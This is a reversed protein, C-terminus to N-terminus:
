NYGNAKFTSVKDNPVQFTGGPGTMTTFGSPPANDGAHNGGGLIQTQWKDLQKNLNDLKAKASAPTDAGPGTLVPIDKVAAAIESQTIRFGSGQGGALASLTGIATTRYNQYARIDADGFLNKGSNILGQIFSPKNKNGISKEFPIAAISDAVDQLNSKAVAIHSLKSADTADLVPKVGLQQALIASSKQQSPTLSSLDVYPTGDYSTKYYPQLTSPLNEVSVSSSAPTQSKGFAAAAKAVYQQVTMGTAQDRRGEKVAQAYPVGTFYASAVDQINGYKNWLDGIKGKQVAEQADPSALFQAPTLSQGYYEKTWSPINSELVQYKGYSRQGAYSGGKLVPSMANYDGNSENGLIAASAASVPDSSTGGQGYPQGTAPDLGAAQRDAMLKAQYDPDSQKIKQDYDAELKHTDIALQNNREAQAAQFQQQEKTNFIDKNDNYVAQLVNIQNTRQELQMAVARDAVAKADSLLGNAALQKVAINAQNQLSSKTLRTIEDQLGASTFGAPSKKLNQITNNLNQQENTM